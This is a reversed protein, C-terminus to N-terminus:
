QAAAALVREIRAAQVRVDHEAAAARAAPNPVPLRAAEAMGAAISDVSEPDVLVGAAPSIFEPPGGVRTAVVPRESAMAELLAQGFPEVMSPQCLVDCAGIWEGVRDHAVPGFVVVGPRAELQPRLPGDGVFALSGRGLRAWADALRLVNKRESLSGVCLYFPPEGGWGLRERLAAGDRGRFRELDVGCDIVEVPVDVGPLRGRLERRLYDSVVIVARARALVFRTAWAAGRMRGVNRVDQGHATLVLPARAARAALAAAAGAPFLFHGYVVEPRFRRAAGIARAALRASRAESRGRRDIVAREVEHGRRALEDAIQKV